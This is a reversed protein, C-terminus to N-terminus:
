RPSQRAWNRTSRTAGGERLGLVHAGATWGGRRAARWSEEVALDVRKLASTLVRGPFLGNQNVDVGVGLKGAAATAALVATGSYGAAAFLIDAGDNLLTRAAQGGAPPDRFASPDHGLYLRKVVTKPAVAGVGVVFGCEFRRVPPISLGGVFGIIGTKSSLGAAVGVLYGAEDERFLVSRVNPQDVWGDILTFRTEPYAAAARAVAGEHMFGVAMINGVGREAFQRLAAEAEADNGVVRERPRVGFENFFRALGVGASENFAGDNKPGQYVFGFELFDPAAAAPTFCALTMLLAVLVRCMAEGEKTWGFSLTFRAM